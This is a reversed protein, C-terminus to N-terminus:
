RPALYTSLGVSTMVGAVEGTGPLEIVAREIRLDLALGIRAQGIPWSWSAALGVAPGALLYGPTEHWYGGDCGGVQDCTRMVEGDGSLWRWQYGARARLGLREGQVLTGTLEIGTGLSLLSDTDREPRASTFSGIEFPTTLAVPGRAIGFASRLAWASELADIAGGTFVGAEGTPLIRPEAAAPRALFLLILVARV